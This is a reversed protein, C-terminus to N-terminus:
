NERGRVLPQFIWGEEGESNSIRIWRGQHAHGILESGGDVTFLIPHGTGPGARVNSRTTATLQVPRLFLEEDPQRSRDFRSAGLRAQKTAEASLYAAGGFNGGNFADTSQTLMTEANKLDISSGSQPRNRLNEIAIEAEALASAAEARGTATQVRAMSRVAEQMAEDLRAELDLIHANRELVQFELEAVEDRLAAAGGDGTTVAVTDVVFVTDITAAVPAPEDPASQPICASLGVLALKLCLSKRSLM